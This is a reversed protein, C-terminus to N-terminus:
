YNAKLVKMIVTLPFISDTSAHTVELFVLRTGLSRLPSVVLGTLDKFTKSGTSQSGLHGLLLNYSALSANLRGRGSVSGSGSLLRTLKRTVVITRTNQGTM